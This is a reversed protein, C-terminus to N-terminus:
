VRMALLLARGTTKTPVQDFRCPADHEEGVWGRYTKNNTAKENRHDSLACSQEVENARWCSYLRLSASDGPEIERGSRIQHHGNTSAPFSKCNRVQTRSPGRPLDKRTGSNICRAPIVRM